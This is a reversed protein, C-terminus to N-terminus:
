SEEAIGIIYVTSAPELTLAFLLSGLRPMLVASIELKDPVVKGKSSVPWDLM